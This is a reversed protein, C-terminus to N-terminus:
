YPLNNVSFGETWKGPNFQFYVRQCEGGKWYGLKHAKSIHPRTKLVFHKKRGCEAIWFSYDPQVLKHEM